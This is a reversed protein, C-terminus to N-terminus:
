TSLLCVYFWKNKIIKWESLLTVRELLDSLRLSKGQELTDKSIPSLWKYSIFSFKM